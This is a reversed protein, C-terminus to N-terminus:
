HKAKAGARWEGRDAEGLAGWRKGVEKSRAALNDQGLFEGKAKMDAAVAQTFWHYGTKKKGGKERREERTWQCM